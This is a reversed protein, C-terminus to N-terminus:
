AREKSYMWDSFRQLLEQRSLTKPQPLMGEIQAQSFGDAKRDAALSDRDIIKDRPDKKLTVNKGDASGRSYFLVRDAGGNPDGSTDVNVKSGNPQVFIDDEGAGPKLRVPVGAGLVAFEDKGKSGVFSVGGKLKDKEIEIVRRKAQTTGGEATLETIGIWVKSSDFPNETIAMRLPGKAQIDLSATKANYKMTTLQKIGDPVNELGKPGVAVTEVNLAKRTREESVSPATDASKPPLKLQTRRVHEKDDLKRELWDKREKPNNGPMRKLAEDLNGSNLAATFERRIDAIEERTKAKGIADRTKDTLGHLFNSDRLDATDAIASGGTAIGRNLLRAAQIDGGVGRQNAFQDFQIRVDHAWRGSDVQSSNFDFKQGAIPSQVNTTVL